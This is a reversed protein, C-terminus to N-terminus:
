NQNDPNNRGLFLIDTKSTLFFFFFLSSFPYWFGLKSQEGTTGVPKIKYNKILILIKGM